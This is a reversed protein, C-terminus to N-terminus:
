VTRLQKSNSIDTELIPLKDGIKSQLGLLIFMFLYRHAHNEKKRLSKSHDVNFSMRSCM